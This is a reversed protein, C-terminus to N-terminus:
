REEKGQVLIHPFDAKQAGTLGATRLLDYLEDLKRNAVDDLHAILYVRKEETM